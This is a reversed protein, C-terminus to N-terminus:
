NVRNFAKWVGVQLVTRNSNSAVTVAFRRVYFDTGYLGDSPPGEHQDEPIDNAWDSLGDIPTVSAEVCRAEYTYSGDFGEIEYSTEVQKAEDHPAALFADVNLWDVYNALVDTLAGETQYYDDLVQRQNGAIQGEINSTLNGAIGIVSLIVMFLLVGILVYGDENSTGPKKENGMIM